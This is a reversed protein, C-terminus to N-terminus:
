DARRRGGRGPRIWRVDEGQRAARSRGNRRMQDMRDRHIASVLDPHFPTM